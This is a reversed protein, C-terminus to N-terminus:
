RPRKILLWLFFPAGLLSTLVGVPLESDPTIVRSLTDIAMLFTGGLIFSRPILQRFDDKFMLRLCHPIVLGVFGIIGGGAIAIGTLTSAYFFIQTRFSSINIGLAQANEDGIAVINLKHASKILLALTVLAIAYLWYLSSVSTHSLDGMLWLMMGRLKTDSIVLLLLTFSSFFANIMIGSLVFNSISFGKTQKVIWFVLLITAYGGLFTGLPLIFPALFAIGLLMTLCAGLGAGASVGLVYPDALPNQLIGQFAAGASALCAGVIFATLLRPLRIHFLIQTEVPTLHTWHSLPVDIAGCLLGIGCVVLCLTIFLSWKKITM